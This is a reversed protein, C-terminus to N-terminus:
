QNRNAMDQKLADHYTNYAENMNNPYNQNANSNINPINTVSINSFDQEEEWEKFNSEGDLSDPVDNAPLEEVKTNDKLSKM